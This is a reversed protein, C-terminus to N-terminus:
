AQYFPFNWAVIGVCVGLPERRIYDRGPCFFNGSCLIEDEWVFRHAAHYALNRLISQGMMGWLSSLRIVQGSDASEVMALRLAQKAIEDAFNYVIDARVRPSLRSWEGNDFTRRAAMVAKEADAPGAKAVTAFAQGTGPDISEMVEGSSAETFQGDVFLKYHDMPFRREILSPGTMLADMINGKTNWM